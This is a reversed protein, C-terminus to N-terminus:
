QTTFVKDAMNSWTSVEHVHLLGNIKSYSQGGLTRVLDGRAKSGNLSCTVSCVVTFHDLGKEFLPKLSHLSNIESHSIRM